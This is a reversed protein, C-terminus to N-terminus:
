IFNSDSFADANLGTNYNYITGCDRIEDFHSLYFFGYKEYGFGTQLEKYDKSHSILAFCFKSMIAQLKRLNIKQQSDFRIVKQKNQILSEYLNWVDEGSIAMIDKSEDYIPNVGFNSLFGLEMDTFIKEIIGREFGDIELPIALPIFISNSSQDIIKFDRDVQTYKLNKINDQYSAISDIFLPSNSDDISLLVKDYLKNFDKEKLILRRMELPMEATRKYRYDRGYLVKADDINFLFVRSTKKSANRNVRGALQEDSDLLSINKFGLDMDIDMGAEVVQTTILLVNINENRNRKIYNVVEKRRPELITGSLVLVEDFFDNGEFYKQFATASKKYIFEVITKVSANEYAYEKSKELVYAALKCLDFEKEELLDFNFEVRGCFNINTIYKRANPLLDIFEIENKFGINLDSIKPLTASMLIFKMNFYQAYNDIFFLMKDWIAPNYTQIEDIVVISNALRHLLYNQEKGNAKLIDFFKVHSLLTIPFLAFLNDIFDRKDKGYVGDKEDEIGSNFPAKSHLETIENEYLGLSDKLAGYTQTILNVFPFVYFAKNLQPNAILLEGIALSSLNTKGAGTPAELYFLSKELNCKITTIVEMSMQKRLFNLNENSRKTPFSKPHTELEQYAVANHKYNILHSYIRKVRKRDSLIGFDSTKAEGGKISNMYEHTALYDAATLLSFNLKILAFLPFPESEVKGAIMKFWLDEINSYIANLLEREVAVQYKELFPSLEELVNKFRSFLGGKEVADFLAPSHHQLIPYSFFFCCGILKSKKEKNFSTKLILSIHYSVYIFAGLYSHGYDPNLSRYVKQHFVNNKMRKLQFNENIKGFDHFVISHVFLTKLFEKTKENGCKKLYGEVLNDIIPDLGHVKVLNQAYSNVLKNHESLSEEKKADHIHAWYSEHHEM